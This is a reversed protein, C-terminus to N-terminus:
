HTEKILGSILCLKTQPRPYIGPHIQFLSDVLLHKVPMIQLVISDLVQINIKVLCVKIWSNLLICFIILNTHIWEYGLVCEIWTHHNLATFRASLLHHLQDVRFVLGLLRTYVTFELGIWAISHCCMIELYIRKFCFSLVSRKSFSNHLM